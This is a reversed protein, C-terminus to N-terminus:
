WFFLKFESNPSTIQEKLFFVSLWFFFFYVVHFNYSNSSLGFLCTMKKCRKERHGSDANDAFTKKRVVELWCYILWCLLQLNVFCFHVFNFPFENEIKIVFFHAFFIVNLISATVFFAATTKLPVFSFAKGAVCKCTSQVSLRLM